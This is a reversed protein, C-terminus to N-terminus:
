RKSTWQHCCRKTPRLRPAKSEELEPLNDPVNKGLPKLLLQALAEAQNEEVLAGFGGRDFEARDVIGGSRVVLEYQRQLWDKDLNAVVLRLLSTGVQKPWIVVSPLGQLERRVCYLTTLFPNWREPLVLYENVMADALAYLEVDSLFDIMDEFEFTQDHTTTDAM